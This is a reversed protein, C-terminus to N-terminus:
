RPCVQIVVTASVASSGAAFTGVAISEGQVENHDYHTADATSDEQRLKSADTVDYVAGASGPPIDLYVPTVTGSPGILRLPVATQSHTYFAIRPEGTSSAPLVARIRKIVGNTISSVVYQTSAVSLYPFVLRINDGGVCSHADGRAGHWAGTGDGEQHLNVTAFAPVSALVLVGLAGLIRKLM